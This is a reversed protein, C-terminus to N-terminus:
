LARAMVFPRLMACVREPLGGSRTSSVGGGTTESMAAPSRFHWRDSVVDIIAAGMVPEVRTAYDARASLGVTAVVTYPWVSFASLLGIVEGTEFVVRFDTDEVLVTGDDDTIAIAPTDAVPFIPLYFRTAGQYARQSPEPLVFTRAEATIPRRIFAEVASTAAAIERALMADEAMNEIRLYDKVDQVTPLAM